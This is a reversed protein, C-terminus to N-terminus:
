DKNLELYKDYCDDYKDCDECDNTNDWDEGFNHDHPCPNEEKDKRRRPRQQEEGEKPTTTRTRKIEKKEEQEEEDDRDRHVPEEEDDDQRHKHKVPEEDVQEAPEETDLEFFMTKIEDYSLVVLIEDLNPIEDLISEKYPKREEFSINRAKPFTNRGFSEWKLKIAATKGEELDPFVDNEENIELEENLVDQFCFQSMDWVYPIEDHEKSDIPVVVYLNRLKAAADKVDDWDGGKDMREKVYDCIPCQKGISKPCVVTDNDVGVSRHVKFPRKYWLSGPTAIDEAENRDPHKEDTVEYPLFDLYIMRTDEEISLTEIGKPLNLYGFSRRRKQRRADESVKGKFYNRRKKTM